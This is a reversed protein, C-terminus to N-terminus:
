AAAAVAASAGDASVTVRERPQGPKRKRAPKEGKTEKSAALWKPPRGRRPKNSAVAKIAEIAQNLRDREDELQKIIKFFDPM